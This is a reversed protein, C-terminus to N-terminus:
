NQLRGERHPQGQQSSTPPLIRKRFSVKVDRTNCELSPCFGCTDKVGSLEYGESEAFVLLRQWFGSKM